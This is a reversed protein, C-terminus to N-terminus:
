AAFASPADKALESLRHGIADFRFESLLRAFRERALRRGSLHRLSAIVPLGHRPQGDDMEWTAFSLLGPLAARTRDALTLRLAPYPMRRLSLPAGWPGTSLPVEVLSGGACVLTQAYNPVAVGATTGAVRSADYEIGEEALVEFRWRNAAAARSSSRFGRVHVGAADELRRRSERVDARFPEWHAGDYAGHAAVEHGARVIRKAVSPDADVVAARLFFTAKARTAALTDILEDVIQVARNGRENLEGKKAARAIAPDEHWEAVDISLLHATSSLQFRV